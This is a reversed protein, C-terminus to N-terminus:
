ADRRSPRKACGDHVGQQDGIPTVGIEAIITRADLAQPKGDITFNVRLRGDASPRITQGANDKNWDQWIRENGNFHALPRARWRLIPPDASLVDLCERLYKPKLNTPKREASM